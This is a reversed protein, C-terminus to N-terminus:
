VDHGFDYSGEKIKSGVEWKNNFVGKSVYSKQYYPPPTFNKVAKSHPTSSEEHSEFPPDLIQIPWIQGEADIWIQNGTDWLWLLLGPHDSYPPQDIHTKYM